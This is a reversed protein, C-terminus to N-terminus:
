EVGFDLPPLQYGQKRAEGALIDALAEITELAPTAYFMLNEGRSEDALAHHATLLAQLVADVEEPGQQILQAVHRVAYRHLQEKEYVDQLGNM